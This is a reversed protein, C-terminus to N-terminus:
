PYAKESQEERYIILKIWQVIWIRDGQLVCGLVIESESRSAISDNKMPPIV